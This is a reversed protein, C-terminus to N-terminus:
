DYKIEEIVNMKTVMRRPILASVCLIAFAGLLILLIKLVNFQIDVYATLSFIIDRVIRILWLSLLTGCATGTLFVLALEEFVMRSIQRRNMAVSYLM